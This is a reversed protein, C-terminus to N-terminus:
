NKKMNYYIQQPNDKRCGEKEIRRDKNLLQWNGNCSWAAKSGYAKM